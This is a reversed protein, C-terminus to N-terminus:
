VCVCACVRVCVCARVCMCVCHPLSVRPVLKLAGLVAALFPSSLVGAPEAGKVDVMDAVSSADIWPKLNTNLSAKSMEAATFPEAITIDLGNAPGAM